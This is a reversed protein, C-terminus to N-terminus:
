LKAFSLGWLYRENYMFSQAGFGKELYKFSNM